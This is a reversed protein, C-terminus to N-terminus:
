IKEEGFSTLGPVHNFIQTMDVEFLGLNGTGVLEAMCTVIEYLFMIKMIPLRYLSETIQAIKQYKFEFNGDQYNGDEIAAFLPHIELTKSKEM